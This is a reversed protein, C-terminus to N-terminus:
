DGGFSARTTGNEKIRGAFNMDGALAELGVIGASVAASVDILTNNQVSFNTASLITITGAINDAGFATISGGSLLVGHANITLGAGAPGAIKLNSTLVLRRNGLDITLGGAPVTITCDASITCDGAGPACLSAGGCQAAAPSAGAIVLLVTLTVCRGIARSALRLSM